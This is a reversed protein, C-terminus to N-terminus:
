ATVSRRGELAGAPTQQRHVVQGAPPAALQRQGQQQLAVGGVAQLVHHLRHALGVVPLEDLPDQGFLTGDTQGDERM